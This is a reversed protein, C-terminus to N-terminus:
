AKGSQLYQTNDGPYDKPSTGQYEPINKECDKREGFIHYFCNIPMGGNAQLYVKDEDIRKVIVNQHAGIPTLSVTISELDVLGKWYNPLEIETANKVKGRVYVDATPAEPAVHRLRWGDLTPHQIDFDKKASLIHGGCNSMVQGQAYLNQGVNITANTDIIDYFIAPGSVAISYPNNIGACTGGFAKPTPSDDNALPAIMLTAYPIVFSTPKGIVVPGEIGASGNIRSVGEGIAPFIGTGVKLQGGINADDLNFTM